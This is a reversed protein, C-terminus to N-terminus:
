IGNRGVATQAHPVAEMGDMVSGILNVIGRSFSTLKILANHHYHSPARFRDILFSSIHSGHRLFFLSTNWRLASADTRSAAVSLQFSPALPADISSTGILPTM